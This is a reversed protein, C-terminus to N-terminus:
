MMFYGSIEGYNFIPAIVETLGCPCTYIYPQATHRVHCLANYDSKKCLNLNTVNSQIASCFPSLEKPYCAIIEFDTSFISIHSGTIRHFDRLIEMTQLDTFDGAKENSKVVIISNNKVFKM